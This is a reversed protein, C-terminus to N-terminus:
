YIQNRPRIYDSSCLRLFIRRAEHTATRGRHLTHSNYKIVEGDKVEFSLKEILDEKGKILNMNEKRSSMFNLQHTSFKTRFEGWCVLLYENSEGDVHWIPRRCTFEGEELIQKQYDITLFKKTEILHTLKNLTEKLYPKVKLISKLSFDKARFSETFQDAPNELKM